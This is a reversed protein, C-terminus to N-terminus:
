YTYRFETAADAECAELVKLGKDAARNQRRSDWTCLGVLLLNLLSCAICFYLGPKYGRTRDQDRFVLSGAIGGLGGFAVVTASCLARKWQGRVNNAQLALTAPVNANAGATLLFVGAYRGAATGLWGMMPIGILCLVMNIVIAPARLRYRDSLWGSGFMFIGAFAYPPAVLCQAAGVSFGMSVVLILPLTYALAYSVATTNFFILAYVWIRWDRAAGFFLAPQFKTVESDARDREIRSVIWRRERATLFRWSSRTSDPFDVLLWYSAFAVVCTLSGEVIFIWRWGALGALGSMHMLGFALIGSFSAAVCGILYFVSYRKGVEYRTYWTSLLYVSSPFFGSEFFGLLVRLGVLQTFNGVFGMGVTVAGWFLVVVSLHLRPGIRRVLVTSPPQFAIYTFFFVLNALNYRYGQLRLDVSMGAINATSMNTRDIISICYLLGITGVLRRDVRRMIRRRQKDTWCDDDDDNHPERSDCEVTARDMAESETRRSGDEKDDMSLGDM